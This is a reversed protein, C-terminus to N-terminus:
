LCIVIPIKIDFKCHSNSVGITPIFIFYGLSGM